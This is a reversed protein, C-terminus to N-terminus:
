EGGIYFTHSVYPKPSCYILLIYTVCELHDMFPLLSYMVIILGCSAAVVMVIIVM